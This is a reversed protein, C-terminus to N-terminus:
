DLQVVNQEALAKRKVTMPHAATCLRKGDQGQFRIRSSWSLTNTILKKCPLSGPLSGPLRSGRLVCPQILAKHDM